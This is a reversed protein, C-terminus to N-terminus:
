MKWNTRKGPKRTICILLPLIKIMDTTILIFSVIRLGSGDNSMQQAEVRRWLKYAEMDLPRKQAMSDTFWVSLLCCLM